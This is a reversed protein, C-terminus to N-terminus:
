LTVTGVECVHGKDCKISGAQNLEVGFGMPEILEIPEFLDQFDKM